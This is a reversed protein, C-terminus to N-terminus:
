QQGRGIGPWNQAFNHVADGFLPGLLSLIFNSLITLCIMGVNTHKKQDESRQRPQKLSFQSFREALQKSSSSSNGGTGIGVTGV